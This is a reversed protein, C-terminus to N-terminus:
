RTCSRVSFLDVNAVNLLAICIVIGILLPPTKMTPRRNQGRLRRIGPDTQACDPVEPRRRIRSNIYPEPLFPENDQAAKASAHFLNLVLYRTAAVEALLLETTDPIPRAAALAVARFWEALTKGSRKAAAEVEELEEPSLRTAVTKARPLTRPDAAPVAQPDIAQGTRSHEYPLGGKPCVLVM